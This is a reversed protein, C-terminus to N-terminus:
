PFRFTYRTGMQREIELNAKLQHKSLFYVLKLGLSRSSKVDIEEPLGIGNDGVVLVYTKDEKTLSIWIRGPENREKSCNFSAPFAYKLSNTVLENVILGVPTARMIDLTIGHVDVSSRFSKPASYSNITQEVLTSLYM